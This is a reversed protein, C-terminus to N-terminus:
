SPLCNSLPQGCQLCLRTVSRDGCSLLVVPACPSGHWLPCPLTAELPLSTPVLQGVVLFSFSFLSCHARVTTPYTSSHCTPSPCAGLVRMQLLSYHPLLPLPASVDGEGAACCSEMRGRGRRVRKRWGPQSTWTGATGPHCELRVQRHFLRPAETELRKDERSVPIAHASQGLFGCTLSRLAATLRPGQIVAHLVAARRGLSGIQVIM